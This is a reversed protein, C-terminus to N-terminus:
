PKVAARHEDWGLPPGLLDMGHAGFLQRLGDVGLAEHVHPKGDYKGIERFFEEMNGAPQYVNIVKGSQATTCAWVHPVNRPVFVSEGPRLHLTRKGVHFEFEGDLVYVWEDQDRHRHKPGGSHCDFEFACLQGATDKASVKTDIPEGGPGGLLTRQGFRDENAAVTFGSFLEESTMKRTGKLHRATKDITEILSRTRALNQQLTTRHSELAALKQFGPRGVIQKIRKLPFGLERYFLIQQLRLLHPQEYFRYGGPGRRAPKLLGQEDYFHLTRVSVGSMTAVQKVTYAM